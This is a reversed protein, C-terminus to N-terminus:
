AATPETCCCITPPVAQLNVGHFARHAHRARERGCLSIRATGFSVSAGAGGARGPLSCLLLRVRRTDAAYAQESTSSCSAASLGSVLLFGGVLVSYRTMAFGVPLTRRLRETTAYPEFYHM